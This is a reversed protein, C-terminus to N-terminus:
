QCKVFRGTDAVWPQAAGYGAGAKYQTVEFERIQCYPQNPLQILARGSRYRYAGKNVRYLRWGTNTSAIETKSDQVLWSSDTMGTKLVKVGPFTASFKRRAAAESAADQSKPATWSKTQADQEIQSKLEAAKEDLPKIIEPSITANSDLYYKRMSPLIKSEWAARDFLLTQVKDNVYGQESNLAENIDIIVRDIESKASLDGITKKTKQLLETRQAAMSCWDAPFLKIDGQYYSAMDPPNTMNTFKQCVADLGELDKRWAEYIKNEQSFGTGGAYYKTNFVPALKLITGIFPKAEDMFQARIPKQAKEQRENEQAEIGQQQTVLQEALALVFAYKGPGVRVKFGNGEVAEIVGAQGDKFVKDGVRFTPKSPDVAKKLDTLLFYNTENAGFRVKAMEDDKFSDIVGTRGDPATVKDGQNFVLKTPRPQNANQRQRELEERKAQASQESMMSDFSYVRIDSRNAGCAVKASRGTITLIKCVRGDNTEVTEGVRFNNQAFVSFTLAYMFIATFIYKTKNSNAPSEEKM